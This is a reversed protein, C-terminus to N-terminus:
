PLREAFEAEEGIPDGTVLACGNVVRYALFSRGTPSFFYSKDRRLAFFALSDSGHERVLREARRREPPSQRARQALPRLWLYMARFALPFALLAAAEEIRESTAMGVSVRVVVLGGLAGLALLVRGLPRLTEPD